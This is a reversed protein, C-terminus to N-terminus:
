QLVHLILIDLGIGCFAEKFYPYFFPHYFRPKTNRELVNRDKYKAINTCRPLVDITLYYSM